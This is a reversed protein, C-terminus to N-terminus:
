LLFHVTEEAPITPYRKLAAYGLSSTPVEEM